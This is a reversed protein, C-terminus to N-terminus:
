QQTTKKGDQKEYYYILESLPYNDMEGKNM